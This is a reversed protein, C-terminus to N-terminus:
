SGSQPLPTAITTAPPNLIQIHRNDAALYYVCSRRENHTPPSFNSSVIWAREPKHASEKRREPRNMTRAFDAAALSHNTSSALRLESRVVVMLPELRPRSEM